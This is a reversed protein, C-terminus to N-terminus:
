TLLSVVLPIAVIQILMGGIAGEVSIGGLRRAKLLLTQPDSERTRLQALAKLSSKRYLTYALSGLPLRVLGVFCLLLFLAPPLSTLQDLLDFHEMYRYSGLVLTDAAFVLLGLAWQKRYFCWLGGFLSAWIHIDCHHRSWTDLYRKEQVYALLLREDFSLGAEAGTDPPTTEETAEAALQGTEMLRLIEQAAELQNARVRLKAGGIAPSWLLNMRVMDADAVYADIHETQLLSLLVHAQTPALNSSLTIFEQNSSTRAHDLM